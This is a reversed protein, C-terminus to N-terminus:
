ASFWMGETCEIFEDEEHDDREASRKADERQAKRTTRTMTSM